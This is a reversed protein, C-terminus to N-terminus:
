TRPAKLFVPGHLRPERLLEDGRKLLIDKWMQTAVPNFDLGMLLGEENCYAESFEGRKTFYPVPEIMGGVFESLEEYKFKKGNKPFVETITGDPQIIKSPLVAKDPAGSM